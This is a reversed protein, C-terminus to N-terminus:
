ASEQTAQPDSASDATLISRSLGPTFRRDLRRSFPSGATLRIFVPVLRRRQGRLAELLPLSNVGQRARLHSCARILASTASPPTVARWVSFPQGLCLFDDVDGKVQRRVAGRAVPLGRGLHALRVSASSARSRSLEPIYGM